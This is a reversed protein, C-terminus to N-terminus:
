DGVLAILNVQHFLCFLQTSHRPSYGGGQFPHINLGIQIIQYLRGILIGQYMYGMFGGDFVNGTIHPIEGGHHIGFAPYFLYFVTCGNNRNTSVDILGGFVQIPFVVPYKGVELQSLFDGTSFFRYSTGLAQRHDLTNAASVFVSIIAAPYAAAM